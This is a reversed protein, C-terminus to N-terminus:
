YLTLRAFTVVPNGQLHVHCQQTINLIGSMFPTGAPSHAGPGRGPQSSKPTSPFLSPALSSCLVQSRPMRLEVM